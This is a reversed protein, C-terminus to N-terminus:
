EFNKKMILSFKITDYAECLLPLFCLVAYCGLATLRGATPAPMVIVPNYSFKANETILPVAALAFLSATVALTIADPLRFSFRNFCTKGKLGYGRARMSDSTEISHELAWTVVGSVSSVANKLEGAKGSDEALGAARRAALTQKLRRSYLPAFRLIMSILLMARPMVRGFVASFKDFTIVRGWCFFWMILSMAAAGNVAGGVASELTLVNGNRLTYLVTVGYHNLLFGTAAAFVFLPLLGLSFLRLAERGRLAAAFAVAAALSVLIFAPSNCLMQLAVVAAFFAIGTVPHRREFYM